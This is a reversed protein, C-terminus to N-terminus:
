APWEASASQGPGSFVSVVVQDIQAVRWQESHAGLEELIVRAFEELTTNEVPLLLVDRKLFVLREAGFHAIYEAPTEEIRLYPSLTPLIFISNWKSCIKTLAIKLPTYDILIGNSGSTGTLSVRVTFNHGHFNERETASFITFHGASFKMEEKFLEITTSHGM